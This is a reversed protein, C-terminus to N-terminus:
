HWVISDVLPQMADVSGDQAYPEILVQHGDVTEVYLRSVSNADIGAAPNSEGIALRPDTVGPIPGLAVGKSVPEIDLETRTVGGITISSRRTVTVGPRSAIWSALDAPPDILRGPHAPDDVKDIRIIHVGIPPLGFELDIWGPLNADISGRCRFGPACNHQVESNIAFTLPPDFASVYTGPYVFGERALISPSPSAVDTPRPTATAQPSTTPSAIPPGGVQGGSPTLFYAAGGVALVIAIAAVAWRAYTNMSPRRQPMWISHRRQNMTRTNVAIARRTSEPLAAPGEELWAAVIADPDRPANM